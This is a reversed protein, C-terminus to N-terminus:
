NKQVIIGRSYGTLDTIEKIYKYGFQLTIAKIKEHQDFGHEFILYGNEKIAPYYYQSIYKYFRLGNDQAFLAMEPEYTVATQLESNYEPDVYPPNAIIVYMSKEEIKAAFRFIDALVPVVALNNSKINEVMYDYAEPSKEVAVVSSDPCYRKIAMAIAGSGSCLDIVSPYDFQNIIEFAHQCVTETDQRPILVGEGIKLTMDFFQWSGLIYQLPYGNKRTECLKILKDYDNQDIEYDQAIELRKKSLVFEVLCDAEFPLTCEPNNQLIEKIQKYAQSFKIM